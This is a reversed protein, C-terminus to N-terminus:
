NSAADLHEPMEARGCYERAWNLYYPADVDGLKTLNPLPLCTTTTELDNRTRHNKAAGLEHHSGDMVIISKSNAKALEENLQKEVSNAAAQATAPSKAETPSMRAQSIKASATKKAVSKGNSDVATATSTTAESKAKKGQVYDKIGVCIVVIAIIGALTILWRPVTEPMANVEVFLPM